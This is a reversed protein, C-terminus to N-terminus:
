TDSEMVEILQLNTTCCTTRSATLSASQQMCSATSKQQPSATRCTTWSATRVVRKRYSVIRYIIQVPFSVPL